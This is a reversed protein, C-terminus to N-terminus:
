QVTNPIHLVVKDNSDRKMWLSRNPVSHPPLGQNLVVRFYAFTLKILLVRCHALLQNIVCYVLNAVRELRNM